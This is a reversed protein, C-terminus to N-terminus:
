CYIGNDKQGYRDTGRAWPGSCGATAVGDRAKWKADPKVDQNKQALKFAFLKTEVQNKM